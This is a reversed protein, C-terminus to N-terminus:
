SEEYGAWNGAEEKIQSKVGWFAGEKVDKKYFILNAINGKGKLKPNKGLRYPLLPCIHPEPGLVKGDCKKVDRYDQSPICTKCHAKIKKLASLKKDNLKCEQSECKFHNGNKCYKCEIKIAKSPTM